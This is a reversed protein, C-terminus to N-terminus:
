PAITKKTFLIERLEESFAGDERRIWEILMSAHEKEEDRNHILIAKLEPNRCLCARQNYCDIADLEEMLSTIARHMDIVEAALEKPDEQHAAATM